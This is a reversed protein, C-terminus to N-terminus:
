AQEGEKQSLGSIYSEMASRIDSKTQNIINTKIAEMPEQFGASRYQNVYQQIRTEVQNRIDDLILQKYSDDLPYAVAEELKRMDDKADTNLYENINGSIDQNLNDMPTPQLDKGMPVGNVTFDEADDFTSPNIGISLSGELKEVKLQDFNYEIKDIHVRKQGKLVDIEAQLKTVSQELKEIRQSQWGIHAYIQEVVQQFSMMGNSM